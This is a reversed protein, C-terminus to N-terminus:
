HIFIIPNNSFLVDHTVNGYFIQTYDYKYLYPYLLKDISIKTWNSNDVQFLSHLEVSTYGDNSVIKYLNYDEEVYVQGAKISRYTSYDKTNLLDSQVYTKTYHLVTHKNEYSFLSKKANDM